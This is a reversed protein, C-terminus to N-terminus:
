KGIQKKGRFLNGGVMEPNDEFLCVETEYAAGWRM